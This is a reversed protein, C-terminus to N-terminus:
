SRADGPGRWIIQCPLPLEDPDGIDIGGTEFGRQRHQRRALGAAMQEVHAVAAAPGIHEIFEGLRAAPPPRSSQRNLLAPFAAPPEKESVGGASISRMRSMLM